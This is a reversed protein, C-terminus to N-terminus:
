SFPCHTGRRVVESGVAFAPRDEVHGGVVGSEKLFERQDPKRKFIRFLCHIREVRELDLASRLAVFPALRSRYRKATCYCDLTLEGRRQVPVGVVVFAGGEVLERWRPAEVGFSCFSYARSTM